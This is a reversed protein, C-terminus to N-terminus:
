GQESSASHSVDGSYTATITHTGSGVASPTYEAHCTASSGSGALTCPSGTFSGPSDSMFSVTGAPTTPAASTDTVTVACTSSVGVTVPGSCTVVIPVIVPTGARVAFLYRGLQASNLSNHILGTQNNSDLFAGNVGSGALEFFTGSAGTGASFGVRASSGALCLSNGGSATGSEWQISNYNFEIDFDGPAIDPRYILVVQFYDKVINIQNYCGVGPWTAGFAPHGNVTGNGYRLLNGVRTDVDAFYPAIIVRQTTTLPFPTFTVLASDFTLDGNNNVYLSTYNTGFFNVTFNLPVLGTSGDDNAALATQNFGPRMAGGTISAGAAHAQPIALPSLLVASAVLM